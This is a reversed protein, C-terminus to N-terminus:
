EASFVTAAHLMNVLYCGAFASVGNSRVLDVHVLRRDHSLTFGTDGAYFLHFSEPHASSDPVFATAGQLGPLSLTLEGLVRNTIPCPALTRYSCDQLRMWSDRGLLVDHQMAESPVVYAWMVLLTTPQDDLFFQVSLRVAASTELPPSKGFGGWSRHPTHRECTASAAGVRKISDFAGTNIFTQPSDTGLLAIGGLQLAALGSHIKLKTTFSSDDMIVIRFVGAVLCTRGQETLLPPHQGSHASQSFTAATTQHCTQLLTSIDRCPPPQQRSVQACDSDRQVTLRPSAIEVLPRPTRPLCVM